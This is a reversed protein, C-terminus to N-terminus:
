VDCYLLVSDPRFGLREWAMGEALEGEKLRTTRAGIRSARQARAWLRLAEQLARGAGLGAQPRVYASSIFAERTMPTVLIHAAAFGVPGSGDDVRLLLSAPDQARLQLLLLMEQFPLGDAAPSAAFEQLLEALTPLEVLALARVRYRKSTSTKVSM